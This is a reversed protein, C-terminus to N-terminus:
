ISLTHLYALTRSLSQNFWSDEVRKRVKCRLLFSSSFLCFGKAKDQEESSQFLKQRLEAPVAGVTRAAAQRSTGATRRGSRKSNQPLLLLSIKVFNYNGLGAYPANDTVANIPRTVKVKLYTM